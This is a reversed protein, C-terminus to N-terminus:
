SKMSLDKRSVVSLQNKRTFRLLHSFIELIKCVKERLFRKRNNESYSIENRSLLFGLIVLAETGRVWTLLSWSKLLKMEDVNGDVVVGFEKSAFRLNGKVQIYELEQQNEVVQRQRGKWGGGALLLACFLVPSQPQKLQHNRMVVIGRGM